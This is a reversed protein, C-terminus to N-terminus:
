DCECVVDCKVFRSSIMIDWLKKWEGNIKVEVKCYKDIVIGSGENFPYHALVREEKGEGEVFRVDTINVSMNDRM